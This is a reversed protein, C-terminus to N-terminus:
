RGCSKWAAERGALWARTWGPCNSSGTSPPSLCAVPLPVIASGGVADRTARVAASAREIMERVGPPPMWKHLAGLVAGLSIVAERRLSGPLQPWVLDLREGPIRELAMWTLDGTRGADLVV